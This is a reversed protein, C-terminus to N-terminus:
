LTTTENRRGQVFLCRPWCNLSRKDKYRVVSRTLQFGHTRWRCEQLIVSRKKYWMGDLFCELRGPPQGLLYSHRDIYSCYLISYLIDIVLTLECLATILIVLKSGGTWVDSGSTVCPEYCIHKTGMTVFPSSCSLHIQLSRWWGHCSAQTGTINILTLLSAVEVYWMELLSPGGFLKKYRDPM